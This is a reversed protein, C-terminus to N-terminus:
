QAPQQPPPEAPEEPPAPAQTSRQYWGQIQPKLLYGVVLLLLLFFGIKAALEAPFPKAEKKEKSRSSEDAPLPSRAQIRAQCRSQVAQIGPTSDKGHAAREIAALADPTGIRALGEAARLRVDPNRDEDIGHLFIPLQLGTKLPFYTLAQLASARVHPDSHVAMSALIRGAHPDKCRGLLGAVTRREKNTFRGEAVKALLVDAPLTELLSDLCKRMSNEADEIGIGLLPRLNGERAKSVAWTLIKQRHSPNSLLTYCEVLEEACDGAIWREYNRLAFAVPDASASKPSRPDPPAPTSVKETQAQPAARSKRYAQLAEHRKM